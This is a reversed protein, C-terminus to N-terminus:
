EHSNDAINCSLCLGMTIGLLLQTQSHTYLPSLETVKLKVLSQLQRKYSNGRLYLM